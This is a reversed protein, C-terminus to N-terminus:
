IHYLHILNSVCQTETFTHWNKNVTKKSFNGKQVNNQRSTYYFYQKLSNLLVIAQPIMPIRTHIMQISQM